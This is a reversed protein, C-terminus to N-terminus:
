TEEKWLPLTLCLRTGGPETNPLLELGGGQAEAVWAALALGVGFGPAEGARTFRDFLRARMQPPVGPGDDTLTLAAMPGAEAGRITLTAGRGAYKVANEVIGSIVQRLWDPDATVVLSPVDTIIALGGRQALPQLDAVAMAVVHSLDVQEQRLELQGSESRAIRLLDEIRRFLRLARAEITAFAARTEEDGRRAGLEAEGLIVTLPTRLEHSVDTFFRRRQRDAAELRENAHSLEATREEVLQGLRERDRLLAERRRDLRAAMQRLRAFLLGLEDHDYGKRGIAGGAVLREAARSASQLRSFLPRLIALYLVGLVLPASIGISLAARRMGRRAAEMQSLAEDRREAERAIQQGIIAPASAAYLQAATMSAAGNASQTMSRSLQGFQARLRAPVHGQTRKAAEAESQAAAIDEETLRDLADLAAIVGADGAPAGSMLSLTWENVRGSYTAYAELRRQAGMAEAALRATRDLGYLAVGAAAVTLLALTAAALALRSSLNLQYRRPLRKM